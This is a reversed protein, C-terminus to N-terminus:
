EAIPLAMQREDNTIDRTEIVESTDSRILTKKEPHWIHEGTQSDFGSCEYVWRCEVPREERGETVLNSLQSQEAEKAQLKAKWMAASAKADDELRRIAPVTEALQKSAQEKEKPNLVVFLTRKETSEPWDPKPAEEIASHEATEPEVDEAQTETDTTTEPM